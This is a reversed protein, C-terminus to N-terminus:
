DKADQKAKSYCKVDIVNASSLIGLLIQASYNNVVCGSIRRYMENRGSVVWLYVGARDEM